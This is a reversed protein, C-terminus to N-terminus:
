HLAVKLLVVLLGLAAGAAGSALRGGLDLGARMGALYSYLTLLGVTAILAAWASAKLDAGLVHALLLVALPLVSAGAVHWTEALALRFSELPHHRHRVSNGIAAAHLHALWYVGATGLIAVCLQGTTEIHGATYAIAAACVVTGTLLGEAGSLLGLPDSAPTTGRDTEAM